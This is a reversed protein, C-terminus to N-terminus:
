LAPLVKEVLEDPLDAIVDAADDSELEDLIERLRGESTEEVLKARYEDDLETLMDGAKEVPLWRFVKRANDINLHVLVQAIDAAHLDSLVNLVMGQEGSEVLSTIDDVLEADMEIMPGSRSTTESGTTPVTEM